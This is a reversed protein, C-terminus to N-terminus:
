TWALATGAIVLVLGAVERLSFSENFLLLSAAAIIIVEAGLIGVYVMGLREQRLAIVELLAGGILPVLILLAPLPGPMTWWSKMAVMAICYFIASAVIVTPAIFM